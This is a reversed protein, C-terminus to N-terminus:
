IPNDMWNNFRRAIPTLHSIILTELDTTPDAALTTWIDVLANGLNEELMGSLKTIPFVRGRRMAESFGHLIPDTTYPPQNLVDLRVPLQSVTAPYASQATKGTLFRVLSVAAEPNRTSSWIMLSSGGVIPVGFPLAIGFKSHMEAPTNKIVYDATAIGGQVVASQRSVFLQENFEYDATHSEPGMFRIMSFYAKLGALAQPETFLAKNGDKSLFDGGAAWIWSSVTHIANYKHGANLLWPKSVGSAQLRILAETLNDPTQFATEQDVGAQELMDRWFFIVHPDALWPVSYLRGDSMRQASQWAAPAFVAEGGM